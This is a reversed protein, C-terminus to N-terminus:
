SIKRQIDHMFAIFGFATLGLLLNLNESEVITLIILLYLKSNFFLDM